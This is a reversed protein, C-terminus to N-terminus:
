LFRTPACCVVAVAAAVRDLALPLSLPDLPPAAAASSGL